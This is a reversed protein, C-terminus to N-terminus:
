ESEPNLLFLLIACTIVQSIMHNLNLLRSFLKGVIIISCVGCHSNLCHDLCCQNLLLLLLLNYQKLSLPIHHLCSVLCVITHVIHVHLNFLHVWIIPFNFQQFDGYTQILGQKFNKSGTFFLEISEAYSPFGSSSILKLKTFWNQWM